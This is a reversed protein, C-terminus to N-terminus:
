RAPTASTARAPAPTAKLRARLPSLYRGPGAPAAAPTPEPARGDYSLVLRREARDRRFIATKPEIKALTWGLYEAGEALRLADAGSKNSLVALRAGASFLIGQLKLDFPLQVSAAEVISEPKAPRRSAVFIPRETTASFSELPALRLHPAAAGPIAMDPVAAPIATISSVPLAPNSRFSDLYPAVFGALVLSGATLVAPIMLSGNRAGIIM